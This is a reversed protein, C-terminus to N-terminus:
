ATELGVATHKGFMVAPSLSEGRRCDCERKVIYSLKARGV